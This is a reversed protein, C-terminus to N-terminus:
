PGTMRSSSSTASTMSSYMRARRSRCTKRLAVMRFLNRCNGPKYEFECVDEGKTRITEVGRERVIRDKVDEPKTRAQTKIVREARRVLEHYLRDPTNGAREVLNARADYGFVFRVGDDNWRDLETTLSFDTDGRLLIDRFGAERCLGISQDFRPIM